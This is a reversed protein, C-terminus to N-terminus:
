CALVTVQHRQLDKGRGLPLASVFLQEGLLLFCGSCPVGQCRLAASQQDHLDVLFVDEISRTALRGQKIQELSAPLQDDVVEHERRSDFAPGGGATGSARHEDVLDTVEGVQVCTVGRNNQHRKCRQRLDLRVPLVM